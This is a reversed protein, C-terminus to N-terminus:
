LMWSKQISLDVLDVLAQNNHHKLYEIVINTDAFVIAM